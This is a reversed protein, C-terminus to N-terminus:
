DLKNEKVNLADALRMKASGPKLPKQQSEHPAWGTLWLIEFTTKLKGNEFTIERYADALASKYERKFGTQNRATLCNTDGIDRIDSILTDFLGYRVVFRDADVVPLAFGVRQLLDAAQSYDAFPFIRPSLGGFVAEDAVYCAQRLEALTEGGFIAGIFLGDPKLVRRINILAGPLDNESHLMLGSIVLDFQATEFPLDDQPATYDIDPSIDTDYLAIWQTPHKDDPLARKITAIFDPAGIVLANEFQRNIDCIRDAADRAVRELLFSPGRRAARTRRTRLLASDFIQPPM